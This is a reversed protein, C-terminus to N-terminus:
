RYQCTDLSAGDASGAVKLLSEFTTLATGPQNASQAIGLMGLAETNNPQENVLPTLLAIAENDRKAITLARGLGLRAEPSDPALKLAAEYEPIAMAARSSFTLADALAIRAKLNNPDSKLVEGYFPVASAYEGDWSLLNALGLMARQSQSNIQLARGFAERARPDKAYSLTEAYETWVEVNDPQVALAMRYFRGSEEYQKSWALVQAAQLAAGFDKPNRAVIQANLEASERYRGSFAYADALGRLGKPHNNYSTLFRNFADIAEPYRKLILLTNPIGYLSYPNKPDLAYAKQYYSLAGSFDKAVMAKGARNVWPWAAAAQKKSVSSSTAKAVPKKATKKLKKASKKAVPKPMPKAVPKPLSAAGPLVTKVNVNSGSVVPPTPAAIPVSATPVPTLATPVENDIGTGNAVPAGVDITPPAADPLAPAPAVPVLTDAPSVQALLVRDDGATGSAIPAGQAEVRVSENITLRPLTAGLLSAQATLDTTDSKSDPSPLPAAFVRTSIRDGHGIPNTSDHGLTVLNRNAWLNQAEAMRLANQLATRAQADSPIIEAVKEWSQAASNWDSHEEHWLAMERQAEAWRPALEVARLLETLAWVEAEPLTEVLGALQRGRALAVRAAMPVDASAAPLEPTEVNSTLPSATIPIGDEEPVIITTVGPVIPVVPAEFPATKEPEASATASVAVNLGLPPMPPLPKVGLKEIKALVRTELLPHRNWLPTTWLEEDFGGSLDHGFRVLVQSPLKYIAPAIENASRTARKVENQAEHDRPKLELVAQWSTAAADWQHRVTKWRAFVRRAELWEPALEIAHQLSIEITAVNGADANEMAPTMLRRARSLAALAAAPVRAKSAHKSSSHLRAKAPNEPAAQAVSFVSSAAFPLLSSAILLVPKRGRRNVNTEPVDIAREANVPRRKTTADHLLIAIVEFNLRNM